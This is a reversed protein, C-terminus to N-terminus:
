NTYNPYNNQKNKAGAQATFCCSMSWFLTMFNVFAAQCIAKIKIVWCLLSLVVSCNEQGISQSEKMKEELPIKHEM